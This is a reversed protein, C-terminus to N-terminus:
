MGYTYEYGIIPKQTQNNENYYTLFLYCGEKCNKTDESNFSLKQTHENVELQNDKENQIYENINYPDIGEKNKILRFIEGSQRKSNLMIEREEEFVEMYYYLDIQTTDIFGKNIYDRQLIYVPEPAIIQFTLLCPHKNGIQEISIKLKSIEM